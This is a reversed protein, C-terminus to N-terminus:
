RRQKNSWKINSFKRHKKPLLMFFLCLAIYSRSNYGMIVVCPHLQEPYEDGLGRQVKRKMIEYMILAQAGLYFFHSLPLTCM